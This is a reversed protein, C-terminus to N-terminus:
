REDDGADDNDAIGSLWVGDMITKAGDWRVGRRMAGGDSTTGWTM